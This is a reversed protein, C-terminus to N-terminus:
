VMERSTPTAGRVPTAADRRTRRWMWAVWLALPPLGLWLAASLMSVSGHWVTTSERLITLSLETNGFSANISGHGKEDSIVPLAAILAPGLTVVLLAVWYAIWAFLLHRPRWRSFSLM